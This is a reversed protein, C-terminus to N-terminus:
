RDGVHRVSPPDVRVFSPTDGGMVASCHRQRPARSCSGPWWWSMESVAISPELRAELRAESRCMFASSSRVVWPCRTMVTGVAVSRLEVAM